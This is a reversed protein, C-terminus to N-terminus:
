RRTEVSRLDVNQDFDIDARTAAANRGALRRALEGRLDGAAGVEAKGAHLGIV